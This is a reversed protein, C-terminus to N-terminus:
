EKRETRPKYDKGLESVRALYEGLKWYSGASGEFLLPDIKKLDPQGDTLYKDDMYLGVIEGIFFEGHLLEVTQALRCEINFPCESIMPATKLEGYFVEFIKSKDIESGSYLGCFDTVAAMDASPVNVSFSKNERIGKNTYHSKESSLGIMAPQYDVLNFWAIAEFNSKGAVNAGVLCVPLILPPYGLRTKSKVM